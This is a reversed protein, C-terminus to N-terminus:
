HLVSPASFSSVDKPPQMSDTSLQSLLSHFENRATRGMDLLRAYEALEKGGSLAYYKLADEARHMRKRAQDVRSLLDM